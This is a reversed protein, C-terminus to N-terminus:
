PTRASLNTVVVRHDSSPTDHVEVGPPEFGRLFIYDLKRTPERGTPHTLTCDTNDTESPGCNPDADKFSQWMPAIEAAHPGANFDGLVIANEWRTAKDYLFKVQDKRVATQDGHALHTNFVRVSKGGITTTVAMFGRPESGGEPYYVRVADEMPQLSLIVQGFRGTEDGSRACVPKDSVSGFELHYDPGYRERVKAQIEYAHKVCTEQLGVIDPKQNGIVAVWGDINNVSSKINWTMVRTTAIKM